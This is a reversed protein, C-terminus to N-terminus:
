RPGRRGRVTAAEAEQEAEALDHGTAQWKGTLQELESRRIKVM